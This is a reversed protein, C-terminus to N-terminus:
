ASAASKLEEASVQPWTRVGWPTRGLIVVTDTSLRSALHERQALWEKGLIGIVVIDVHQGDAFWAKRMRGEERFGALETLRRSAENDARYFSTVRTLRLQDVALDLLMAATRIGIGRRRAPGALYIPLVADGHVYNIDQLGAIGVVEGAQDDITFWYSTRPETEALVERWGAQMADSNLPMPVRRDFVALDELHEFWRAIVPIDDLEMPRMWYHDRQQDTM